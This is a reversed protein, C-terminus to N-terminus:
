THAHLGIRNGESDIFIAISGIDDPLVTAPMVIKGGAEPIRSLVPELSTGTNMYIVAGNPGPQFEPHNVVAGSVQGNGEYPFMAMQMDGMDNKNLRLDFIQEYFAVGRAFDSAPIEFWNIVNKM